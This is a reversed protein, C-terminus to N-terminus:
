FQFRMIPTQVINSLHLNRDAIQITYYMSDPFIGPYPLANINLNIKGFISKNKGTPTLNLIRDNYKVTDTTLPIIIPMSKGDEVKYVNIFLNYFFKSGYNFPALTDAPELGIDGDGDTYDLEILVISDIGNLQLQQPQKELKLTPIESFQLGEPRCSALLVIVFIKIYKQVM